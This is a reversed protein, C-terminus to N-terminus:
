TGEYSGPPDSDGEGRREVWEQRLSGVPGLVDRQFSWRGVRTQLVGVLKRGADEIRVLRSENGFKQPEAASAGSV